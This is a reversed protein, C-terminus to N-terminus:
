ASVLAPTEVAVAKRLADYQRIAWQIGHCLWLYWRDFEKVEMEWYEVFEFTKETGDSATWTYRFDRLAELATTEYEDCSLVLERVERALDTPVSHSRYEDACRRTVSRRFLAPSYREARERGDVIKEQWYQPNIRDGRFFTFMDPHRSFTFGDSAGGIYLRGPWTLVEFGYLSTDPRTCLLHRYAGDDHLVKMQHDTTEAAFRAAAKDLLMTYRDRPM